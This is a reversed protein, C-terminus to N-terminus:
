RQGARATSRWDPSPSPAGLRLELSGPSLDFSRMFVEGGCGTPAPGPTTFSTKPALQRQHDGLHSSLLNMLKTGGSYPPRAATPLYPSGPLDSSCVDSSWDRPWRTHRRRSSFFFFFMGYHSM